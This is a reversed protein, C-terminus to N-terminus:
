MPLEMALWDRMDASWVILPLPQGVLKPRAQGGVLFEEWKWDGRLLAQL